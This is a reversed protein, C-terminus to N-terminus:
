YVHWCKTILPKSAQQLKIYLGVKPSHESKDKRM